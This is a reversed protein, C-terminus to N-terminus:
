NPAVPTVGRAAAHGDSSAKKPVGQLQASQPIHHVMTSAYDAGVGYAGAQSRLLKMLTM